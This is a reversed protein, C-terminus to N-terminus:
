KSNELPKKAEKEEVKTYNVLGDMNRNSVIKVEGHKGTIETTKLGVSSVVGKFDDIEVEDGVKFQNEAIIVVGSIVDKIMDQFALGLVVALIGLGALLSAVNVGFDALVVLIVLILFAYKLFSSVMQLITQIKRKQQANMNKRDARKFIMKILRMLIFYVVFVVIIFIISNIIRKGNIEM